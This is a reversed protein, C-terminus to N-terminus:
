EFEFKSFDTGNNQKEYEFREIIREPLSSKITDSGDLFLSGVCKFWIEILRGVSWCPECTQFLGEQKDRKTELDHIEKEHTSHAIYCM